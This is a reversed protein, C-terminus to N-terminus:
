KKREKRHHYVILYVFCLILWIGTAYRLPITWGFCLAILKIGGVVVAWSLGYGIVIACIVILLSSFLNKKKM